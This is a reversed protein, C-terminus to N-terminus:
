EPKPKQRASAITARVRAMAEDHPVSPQPDALSEEVKARFWLDYAEAEESTAFESDLPSLQAM